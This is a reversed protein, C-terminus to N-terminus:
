LKVATPLVGSEYAKGTNTTYHLNVVKKLADTELKGGKWTGKLAGAKLALDCAVGLCCFAGDATHLAGKTQKYEGSRLAKVWIDRHEKQQEATWKPWSM